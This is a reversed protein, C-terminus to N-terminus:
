VPVPTSPSSSSQFAQTLDKSSQLVFPETVGRRRDRPECTGHRNKHPHDGCM